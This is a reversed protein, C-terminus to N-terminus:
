RPRARAANMTERQRETTHTEDDVYASALAHGEVTAQRGQDV